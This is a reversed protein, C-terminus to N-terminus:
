AGLKAAVVVEAVAASFFGYEFAAAARNYHIKLCILTRRTTAYVTKSACSGFSISLKQEITASAEVVVAAAAASSICQKNTWACVAVVVHVIVVDFNHHDNKKYILQM